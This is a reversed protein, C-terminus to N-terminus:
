QRHGTGLAKVKVIALLWCQWHNCETSTDLAMSNVDNASNPSAAEVSEM